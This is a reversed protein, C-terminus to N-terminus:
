RLDSGSGKRAALWRAIPEGDALALARLPPRVRLWSGHGTQVAMVAKLTAEFPRDSFQAVLSEMDSEGMQTDCMTRVLDPAINGLGCITGSAGEALARCIHAESGMTISLEPVAHRFSRFDAFNVSSDKIGAVVADYRKRLRAAVDAPIPVGSVQPIHYLTARMRPDGVGDFIASFADEIGAASAERFFFPPLLLFQTVGISLAGKALAITDPIAPFGCGLAILTPDVGSQLLFEIGILREAATFSPGEGTTGFAVVGDVGQAFLHHTHRVFLEPDLSGDSRLPSPLAV